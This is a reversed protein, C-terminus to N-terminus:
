PSLALAARFGPTATLEGALDVTLVDIDWSGCAERLMSEGGAVIATALVDATLIDDAVVTVQLYEPAM